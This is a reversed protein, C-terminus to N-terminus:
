GKVSRAGGALSAAEADALPTALIDAAPHVTRVTGTGQGAFGTNVNARRASNAAATVPRPMHGPLHHPTYQPRDAGLAIRPSRFCRAPQGAPVIPHEIGPLERIASTM